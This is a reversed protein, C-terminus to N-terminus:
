TFDGSEIINEKRCNPCSNNNVLWKSICSIHFKHKCPLKVIEDEKEEMCFCIESNDEIENDNAKEFKNQLVNEVDDVSIRTHWTLSARLARYRFSSSWWVLLTSFIVVCIYIIVFKIIDEDKKNETSIYFILLLTTISLEFWIYFYIEYRNATNFIQQRRELDM